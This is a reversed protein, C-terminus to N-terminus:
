RSYIIKLDPICINDDGCDKQINVTDKTVVGVEGHGHVGLVPTLHSVHDRSEPLVVTM